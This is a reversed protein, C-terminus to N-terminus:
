ANLRFLLASRGTVDYVDLINFPEERVVDPTNTDFLLKWHQGGTCEPLTFQVLDHYANLVFLMTAASGRRRIGTAQARGDMLMGFCRMNADNWDAGCMEQGSANVWTVDRVDLEENMEGTMFRGRRLIPYDHRLQTLKRVFAVLTVGKDKVDWNVWSVDNDQCYANNNGDQTRAFEDGALIMPTGKSLLM